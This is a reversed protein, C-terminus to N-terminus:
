LTAPHLLHWVAQPLKEPHIAPRTGHEIQLDAALIDFLLTGRPSAM